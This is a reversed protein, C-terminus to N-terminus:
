QGKGDLHQELSAFIDEEDGVQEKDAKEDTTIVTETVAVDVKPSEKEQVPEDQKVTAVPTALGDLLNQEEPISAEIAGIPEKEPEVIDIAAETPPESPQEAPEPAITPPMPEKTKPQDEESASADKMSVDEQATVSESAAVETTPVAPETLPETSVVETGTSETPHSTAPTVQLQPINSPVELFSNSNEAKLPSKPKSAAKMPSASRSIDEGESLEGDDRDNDEGDEGDEDDDESGDDGDGEAQASEAREGNMTSGDPNLSASGTTGAGPATAANVATAGGNAGDEIIVKKKRGRGPGKPKRKPIPPRRRPPTPMMHENAVIIGEANALGLGEIVTGAAPVQVPLNEGDEVEGDITTGEPILVELLYPNGDADIKKVKCRRMTLTAGDTAWGGYLTPLGKKRKALYEADPEEAEKAVQSWRNAVFSLDLDGEADEEEAGDKDEENSKSNRQLIRGARAARLLAQSWPPYLDSGKPMPLERWITNKQASEAQVDKQPNKNVVAPQKRWQRVPLGEM